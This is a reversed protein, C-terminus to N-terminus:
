MSQNMVVENIAISIPNASTGRTEMPINIKYARSVYKDALIKLQRFQDDTLGTGVKTITLFKENKDDYIGALFGGIGFKSREGRGRYYGLVVLDVSDDLLKEDASKLKVWSYSRAGAQYPEGPKKVVLGELNLSKAKEYYKSLEVIGFM